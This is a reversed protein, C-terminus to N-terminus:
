NQSTAPETQVQAAELAAKQVVFAAVLKPLLNLIRIEILPHFLRKRHWIAAHLGLLVVGFDVRKTTKGGDDFLM